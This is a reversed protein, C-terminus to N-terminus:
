RRTGKPPQRVRDAPEPAAGGPWSRVFEGIVNGDWDLSEWWRSTDPDTVMRGSPRDLLCRRCIFGSRDTAHLGRYETVRHGGHERGRWGYYRCVTIGLLWRWRIRIVWM